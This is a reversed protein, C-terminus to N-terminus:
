APSSLAIQTSKGPLPPLFIQPHVHLATCPPFSAERGYPYLVEGDCAVERRYPYPVEGDCAVERGYPYLVEADCVAGLYRTLPQTLVLAQPM